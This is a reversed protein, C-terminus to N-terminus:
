SHGCELDAYNGDSGRHRAMFSAMRRAVERHEHCTRDFRHAGRRLRLKDFETRHVGITQSTTTLEIILITALKEDFTSLTQM